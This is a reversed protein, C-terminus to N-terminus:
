EPCPERSRSDSSHEWIAAMERGTRAWFDSGEGRAGRAVAGVVRCLDGPPSTRLLARVFAIDRALHHNSRDTTEAPAPELTDILTDRIAAPLHDLVDWLIARGEAQDRSDLEPSTCAGSTAIRRLSARLEVSTRFGRRPLPASAMWLAGLSRHVETALMALARPPLPPSEPVSPKLSAIVSALKRERESSSLARLTAVHQELRQCLERSLASRVSIANRDSKLTAALALGDVLSDEMVPGVILMFPRQIGLNQTLGEIGERRATSRPQVPRM